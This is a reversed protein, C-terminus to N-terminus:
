SEPMQPVETVSAIARGKWRHTEDIQNAHFGGNAVSGTVLVADMGVTTPVDPFVSANDSLIKTVQGQLHM